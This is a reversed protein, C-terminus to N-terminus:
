GFPLQAVKQREDSRRGYPAIRHRVLGDRARSRKKPLLADAVRAANDILHCIPWGLRLSVDGADSRKRMWDLSSRSNDTAQVGQNRHSFGLLGAADHSM